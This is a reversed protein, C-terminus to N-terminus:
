VYKLRESGPGLAAPFASRCQTSPPPSTPYDSIGTEWVTIQEQTCMERKQIVQYFAPLPSTPNRVVHSPSPPHPIIPGNYTKEVSGPVDGKTRLETSASRKRAYDGSERLIDWSIHLFQLSSIALVQLILLVQNQGHFRSTRPTLTIKV